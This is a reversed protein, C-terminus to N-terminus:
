HDPDRVRQKPALEVSNMAHVIDLATNTITQGKIRVQRMSDEAWSLCGAFDTLAAPCDFFDSKGTGRRDMLYIEVSGNSAKVLGAAASELSSSPQGAGGPFWWLQTPAFMRQPINDLYISKIFIPISSCWGLTSNDWDM